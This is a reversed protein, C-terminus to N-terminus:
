AEDLEELYKELIEVSPESQLLSINKKIKEESWDWWKVKELLRIVDDSFRMKHCRAPVGVVMSYPQVDCTVVAGAGIVAGDGITVGNIINVGAGIWVDNGIITEEHKEETEFNDVGFTRNFWYNNYLATKKYDHNGGGISVNWSICCYKGIATNKIVTNTGTYSGKGIFSNRILNRRGLEAHEDMTSDLIDSDQGICCKPGINSKIVRVGDYIKADNAIISDNKVIM